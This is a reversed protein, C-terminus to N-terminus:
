GAGSLLEIQRACTKRCEQLAVRRIMRLDHAELSRNGFQGDPELAFGRRADRWATGSFGM